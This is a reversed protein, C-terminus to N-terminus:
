EGIIEEFIQTVVFPYITENTVKDMMSPPIILYYGSCGEQEAIAKAEADTLNPALLTKITTEVKM